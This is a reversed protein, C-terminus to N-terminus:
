RGPMVAFTCHALSTLAKPTIRTPAMRSSADGLLPTIAGGMHEHTLGTCSRGRSVEAWRSRGSNPTAAVPEDSPHSPDSVRTSNPVGLPEEPSDELKQARVPNRKRLRCAECSTKLGLRETAAPASSVQAHVTMGRGRFAGLM